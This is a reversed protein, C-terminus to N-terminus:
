LVDEIKVKLINAKRKYGENSIYLEGAPSFTIGEPHNFLTRNLKYRSQISGDANLIFIQPNAAELLYVQSTVPHIAIDSPQIANNRNKGKSHPLQPDTLSVKIVPDPLLKKTKLDFAYIGKFDRAETERGKLAILLRNNKQDYAIGEVDNEATLPTDYETIKPHQTKIDSVEFIKGNSRVSYATTGALTLGEYDAAAGFDVKREILATSTNYIFITGAEDQVCAFKHDSLYAIGSVEKLLGPLEWKTIIDVAGSAPEEKTKKNKKIKKEIKQTTAQESNDVPANCALLFLSLLLSWFTRNM